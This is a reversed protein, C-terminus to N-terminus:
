KFRADNLAWYAATGKLKPNEQALDFATKGENNKAKGDSGAKLLTTIVEPNTNSRSAYMLPTRGDTDRESVSAGANLLTTIVEPNTNSSSAYM